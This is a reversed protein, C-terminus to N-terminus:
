SSSQGSAIQHIKKVFPCTADVVKAGLAELEDYVCKAVGHSRIVVAAGAPAEGPSDVVVAGRRSLGDIMQPNHIIPGLTCVPEGRDLLEEVIKVARDVGFCFGATKAVSVKRM